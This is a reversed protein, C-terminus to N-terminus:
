HTIGTSVYNINSKMPTCFKSNRPRKFPSAFTRGIIRKGNTSQRDNPSATEITNSIDALQKGLARGVQKKWLVVGNTLSKDMVTNITQIVNNPPKQLCTRLGVGTKTSNDTETNNAQPGNNPPNQMCTRLGVGDTSSNDTATNITPIQLGNNLPKHLCTISSKLTCDNDNSVADFQKILNTGSVLSKPKVSSRMQDTSQLLPSLFSKSMLKSKAETTPLSPNSRGNLFIFESDNTDEENLFTGLEPDGLLSRARQLADSSISLSRGGATHFKISSPNPASSHMKSQMLNKNTQNGFGSQGIDTECYLSRSVSAAQMNGDCNVGDTTDSRCLNQWKHQEDDNCLNRTDQFGQLNCADDFEHLGLITKARALGDSPIKVLKGSGTQFFSNAFGRESDSAQM